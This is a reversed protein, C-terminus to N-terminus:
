LDNNLGQILADIESQKKTIMQDISSIQSM